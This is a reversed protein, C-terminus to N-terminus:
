HHRRRASGSARKASASRDFRAQLVNTQDPLGKDQMLHMLMHSQAADSVVCLGFSLDGATWPGLYRMSRKLSNAIAIFDNETATTQAARNENPDSSYARLSALEELAVGTQPSRPGIAVGSLVFQRLAASVADLRRTTAAFQAPRSFGM